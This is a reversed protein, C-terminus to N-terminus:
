YNSRREQGKRRKRNINTSQFQFEYQNNEISKKWRLHSHLHHTLSQMIEHICQMKTSPTIHFELYHLQNGIWKWLDPSMKICKNLGLDKYPNLECENLIELSQNLKDDLIWFPRNLIYYMAM